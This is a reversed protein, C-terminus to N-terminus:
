CLIMLAAKFDSLANLGGKGIFIIELTGNILFLSACKRANPKRWSLTSPM